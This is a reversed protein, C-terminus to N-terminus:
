IVSGTPKYNECYVILAVYMKEQLQEELTYKHQTTEFLEERLVNEKKETAILHEKWRENINEFQDILKRRSEEIKIIKKIIDNLAKQAEEKEKFCQSAFENLRDNEIKCRFM